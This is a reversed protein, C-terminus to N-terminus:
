WIVLALLALIEITECIAGYVDGTLGPIRRLVLAAIVGAAAGAGVLVFGQLSHILLNELFLEPIM